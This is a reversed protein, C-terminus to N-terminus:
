HGEMRVPPRTGWAGSTTPRRRSSSTTSYSSPCSTPPPSTVSDQESSPSTRIQPTAGQDQLTKRSLKKQTRRGQAVVLPAALLGVPPLLDALRSVLGRWAPLTTVLSPRDLVKAVAAVVEEPQLLKGSFSLAAAPDDLKDHLM